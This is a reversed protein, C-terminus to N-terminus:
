PSLNRNAEFLSTLEYLESSSIYESLEKRILKDIRENIEKQQHRPDFYKINKKNKM